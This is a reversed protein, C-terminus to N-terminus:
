DVKRTHLVVQTSSAKIGIIATASCGGPNDVWVPSTSKMTFSGGKWGEFTAILAARLTATLESAKPWYPPVTTSKWGLALHGHYGRYRAATTPSLYCFDFLVDADPECRELAAILAGLTTTQFACLDLETM